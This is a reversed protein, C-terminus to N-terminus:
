MVYVCTLIWTHTCYVLMDTCLHDLREVVSPELRCLGPGVSLCVICSCSRLMAVAAVLVSLLQQSNKM